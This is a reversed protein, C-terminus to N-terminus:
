HKTGYIQIKDGNVTGNADIGRARLQNVIKDRLQEDTMGPDRTDDIDAAEVSLHSDGAGNKRVIEVHRGAADDAGIHVTAQDGNREVQVDSPYWGSAELQAAIEAAVEDDTKGDMDVEVKLLNERAMAYVSGWVRERRPTVTVQNGHQRMTAARREAQAATGRPLRVTTARGDTRRVQLDYGVTHSYPIPVLLVAAAVALGAAAIILLKRTTRMISGGELTPRAAAHALSRATHDLPPLGRGTTDALAKLDADIREDTPSRETM